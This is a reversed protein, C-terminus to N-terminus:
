NKEQIIERWGKIKHNRNIILLKHWKCVFWLSNAQELALLYPKTRKIWRMDSEAFDQVQNVKWKKLFFSFKNVLDKQGM